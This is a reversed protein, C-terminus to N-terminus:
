ALQRALRALRRTTKNDRSEIVEIQSDAVCHQFEEGKFPHEDYRVVVHHALQKGDTRWRPIWSKIVTGTWSKGEQPYHVRVHTNVPLHNLSTQLDEETAKATNEASETDLPGLPALDSPPPRAGSSNQLSPPLPLPPARSQGRLKTNSFEPPFPHHQDFINLLDKVNDLYQVSLWKDSAKDFGVWRVKYQLVKTGNELNLHRDARDLTFFRRAVVSHVLWYGGSTPTSVMWEDDAPVKGQYPKLRSVHVEARIRQTHLDALVYRDHSLVSAM